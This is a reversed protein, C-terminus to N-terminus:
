SYQMSMSASRKNLENVITTTFVSVACVRELLAIVQEKDDAFRYTNFREAM